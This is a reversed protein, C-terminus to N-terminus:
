KGRSRLTGSGRRFNYHCDRLVGAFACFTRLSLRGVNVRLVLKARNVTRRDNVSGASATRQRLSAVEGLM